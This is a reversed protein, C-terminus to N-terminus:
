EIMKLIENIIDDPYYPFSASDKIHSRIIAKTSIMDTQGRTDREEILAVSYASIGLAVSIFSVDKNDFKLQDHSSVIASSLTSIANLTWGKVLRSYRNITDIDESPTNFIAMNILTGEILIFYFSDLQTCSYLNESRFDENGYQPQAAPSGLLYLEAHMSQEYFIFASFVNHIASNLTKINYKRMIDPAKSLDVDGGAISEFFSLSMSKQQELLLHTTFSDRIASLNKAIRKKKEAISLRSDLSSDSSILIIREITKSVLSPQLFTAAQSLKALEGNDGCLNLSFSTDSKEPISKILLSVLDQHSLGSLSSTYHM